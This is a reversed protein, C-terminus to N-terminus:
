PMLFPPKPTESANPAKAPVEPRKRLDSIILIEETVKELVDFRLDPVDSVDRFMPQGDETIVGMAVMFKDFNVQKEQGFQAIGNKDVELYELYDLRQKATLERIRVTGIEPIEVDKERLYAAKSFADRNGLHALAPNKVYQKSM